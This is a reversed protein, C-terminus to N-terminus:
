LSFKSGIGNFLVENFAIENSLFAHLEQLIYMTNNTMNKMILLHM